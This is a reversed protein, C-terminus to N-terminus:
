GETQSAVASALVDLSQGTIRAWAVVQSFSPERLGRQWSSITPRAVGILRGMETQDIDALQRFTQLTQGLPMQRVTIAPM